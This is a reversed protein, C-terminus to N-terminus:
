NLTRKKFWVFVRYNYDYETGKIGTEIHLGCIEWGENGKENLAVEMEESSPNEPYYTECKYRFGDKYTKSTM